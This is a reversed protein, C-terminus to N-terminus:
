PFGSSLTNGPHSKFVPGASGTNGSERYISEESAVSFPHQRLRRQLSCERQNSNHEGDEQGTEAMGFRKNGAMRNLPIGTTVVVHHALGKVVFVGASGRWM